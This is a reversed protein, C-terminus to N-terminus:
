ASNRGDATLARLLGCRFLDKRTAQAAPPNKIVEQNPM